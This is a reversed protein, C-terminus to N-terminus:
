AVLVAVVVIVSDAGHEVVELPQPEVEVPHYTRYSM